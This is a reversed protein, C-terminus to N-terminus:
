FVRKVQVLDQKAHSSKGVYGLAVKGALLQDHDPVLVNGIKPELGVRGQAHRGIRGTVGSVMWQSFFDNDFKGFIYKKRSFYKYSQTKYVHPKSM